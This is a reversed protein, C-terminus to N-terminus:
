PRDDEGINRLQYSLLFMICCGAHALHPLGTEEDKDKGLFFAFMHRLLAGYVRSWKMGKAWNREGYKKAGFSLVKAIEELADVPLLDVRNKEKDHKIGQQPQAWEPTSLELLAVKAESELIDIERISM